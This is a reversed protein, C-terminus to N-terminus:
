REGNQILTAAKRMSRETARRLMWTALPALFIGVLGHKFRLTNSQTWRTGGEIPQYDWSGGGGSFLPSQVEVMSLSTRRPRDFLKYRFRCVLGGAGRIWVVREPVEAEIRAEVVSPDWSVRKDYDQTFDWVAEPTAAVDVSFEAHIQRM